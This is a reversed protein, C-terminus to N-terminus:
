SQDVKIIEDALTNVQDRDLWTDIGCARAARDFLDLQTKLNGIMRSLNMLDDHPIVVMYKADDQSTVTVKRKIM